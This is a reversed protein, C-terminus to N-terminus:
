VSKQRPHGSPGSAISSVRRLKATLKPSSRSMKAPKASISRARGASRPWRNEATANLTSYRKRYWSMLRKSSGASVASTTSRSRATIGDANPKMLDVAEEVPGPLRQREKEDVVGEVVPEVAQLVSPREEPRLVLQVVRLFRQVGRRRKAVMPEFVQQPDEQDHQRHRHGEIQLGRAGARRGEDDARHGTKM